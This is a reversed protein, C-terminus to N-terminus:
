SVDFLEYSFLESKEGLEAVFNKMKEESRGIGIVHAGTKEIFLKSLERGIGSSAGTIVITQDKLWNKM